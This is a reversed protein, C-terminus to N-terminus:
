ELVDLVLNDLEKQLKAREIIAKKKKVIKKVKDQLYSTFSRRAKIGRKM